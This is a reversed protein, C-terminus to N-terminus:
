AYRGKRLWETMWAAKQDLVSLTSPNGNYRTHKGGVWGMFRLVHFSSAPVIAEDNQSNRPVDILNASQNNPYDFVGRYKLPDAISAM